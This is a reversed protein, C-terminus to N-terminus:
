RNIVGLIFERIENFTQEVRLVSKETPKKPNPIHFTTYRLIKWGLIAAANYKDCDGIFGMPNIHRGGVFVGGELEIAIKHEPLSRDFKWRRTPHFKHQHVLEPLDSCYKQYFHDFLGEFNKTGM